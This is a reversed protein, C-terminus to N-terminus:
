AQVVYVYQKKGDAKETEFNKIDRTNSSNSFEKTFSLPAESTVIVSHVSGFFDTILTEDLGRSFLDNRVTPHSRVLHYNSTQDFFNQMTKRSDPQVTELFQLINHTWRDIVPVGLTADDHHSLSDEGVKSSAAALVNPSYIKQYMSQAQCTDILFLLENYRGKQFMQEFADALEINTIEEAEQFKLFGDGGHGTLYVLVNSTEDSLLRKSTPVESQVRNTLVRVLNEATVEYGSFLLNIVFFLYVSM